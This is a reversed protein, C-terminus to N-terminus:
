FLHFEMEVSVEVAVPEGNRKAPEFKWTKITAASTEDLGLGLPQTLKVSYVSGDPGVIMSFVAKGQFQKARAADSYSPDPTYKPIPATVGNGVHNVGSPPPEPKKAGPPAREKFTMQQGDDSYSELYSILYKSWMEPVSAIFDERTFAFVHGLITHAQDASDLPQNLSIELKVRQDLKAPVLTRKKFDFKVGSRQGEVVLRKAELKIKKILLRGDITWPGLASATPSNGLSDYQQTPATMPQRLTYIHGKYQQNLADQLSSDATAFSPAAILLLLLNSLRYSMKM